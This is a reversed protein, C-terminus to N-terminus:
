PLSGLSASRSRKEARSVLCAMIWSLMRLWKWPKGALAGGIAMREAMILASPHKEGFHQCARLRPCVELFAGGAQERLHARDRRGGELHLLPSGMIYGRGSRLYASFKRCMINETGYRVISGSGSTTRASLRNRISCASWSCFQEVEVTRMTAEEPALMNAEHAGPTLARHPGSCPPALMATISISSSILAEPMVTGSYM